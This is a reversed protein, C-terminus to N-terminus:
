PTAKICVSIYGCAGDFDDAKGVPSTFLSGPAACDATHFSGTASADSFGLLAGSTKDYFCFWEVSTGETHKLLSYGHCPATTLSTDGDPTCLASATTQAAAFDTPCRALGVACPDIADAEPSADSTAAPSSSSSCALVGFVLASTACVIKMAGDYALRANM